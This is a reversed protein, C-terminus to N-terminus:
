GVFVTRYLENSEKILANKTSIEKLRNETIIGTNKALEKVLEIVNEGMLQFSDFDHRKQQSKSISYKLSDVRLIATANIFNKSSSNSGGIGIERKLGDNALYKIANFFGKDGLEIARNVGFGLTSTNLIKSKFSVKQKNNVARVKM